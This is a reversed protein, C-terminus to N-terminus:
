TKCLDRPSPYEHYESNESGNTSQPVRSKVIEKIAEELNGENFKAGTTIRGAISRKKGFVKNALTPYREICDDVNMRLRGLMIANLRIAV